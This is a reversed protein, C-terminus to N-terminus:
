LRPVAKPINQARAARASSPVNTWKGLISAEAIVASIISAFLVGLVRLGFVWVGWVGAPILCITVAWMISATSGSHKIQPSSEIKLNLKDSM